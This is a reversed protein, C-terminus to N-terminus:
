PRDPVEIIQFEGDKVEPRFVVPIQKFLIHPEPFGVKSLNRQEPILIFYYLNFDNQSLAICDGNFYGNICHENFWKKLSSIFDKAQDCEIKM